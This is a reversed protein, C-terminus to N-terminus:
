HRSMSTAAISAGRIRIISRTRGWGDPREFGDGLGACMWRGGAHGWHYGVIKRSYKDTVLALYLFSEATRLYTLDSVWM